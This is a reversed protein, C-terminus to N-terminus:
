EGGNEKNKYPFIQNLKNAREECGCDEKGFVKAISKAIYDIKTAKTIKKIDDGLGQSEQRMKHMDEGEQTINM